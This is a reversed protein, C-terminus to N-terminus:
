RVLLWLLAPVIFAAAFAVWATGNATRPQFGRGSDWVLHRVGAALHYSAAATLLFLGLQGVWSKVLGSFLAFTEPGKALLALWAVLGLAGAYLGIGTARTAISALMTIHWRWITLHPSTPRPRGPQAPPAAM